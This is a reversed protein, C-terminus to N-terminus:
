VVSRTEDYWVGPRMMGSDYNSSNVLGFFFFSPIYYLVRVTVTVFSTLNEQSSHFGCNRNTIVSGAKLILVDSM